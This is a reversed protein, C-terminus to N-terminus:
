KHVLQGGPLPASVALEPESLPIRVRVRAGGTPSDKIEITGHHRSVIEMAIALGLGHHEGGSRAGDLRVFRLFVEGRREPPIGPGDDDVTLLAHGHREVLSVRISSQAHQAANDLVNRVVRRLASRVGVVQAGSVGSADVPALQRIEAVEALVLEDLDLVEFPGLVVGSDGEALLLLDDLMTQLARLERLQMRRVQAPDADPDHEATELQTRLRTLPTRLEHSADAVFQHQERVSRELRELMENMTAALRALEDSGPPVPVRHDLQTVGISAVESRIEEVPRLTRGVVLWVVVAIAAVAVPVILILSRVLAESSDDLEDRPEGLVIHGSRGDATTYPEVVVRHTEGAMWIDTGTDDALHPVGGPLANVMGVQAIPETDPDYVIIVRDDDHLIPLTAGSEVAAGIAEAEDSLLEDIQAVASNEHLRVVLLSAGTLMIAVAITAVLTVGLRLPVRPTRRRRPVEPAM